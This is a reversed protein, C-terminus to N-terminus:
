DDACFARVRLRHNRAVSLLHMVVAFRGEGKGVGAYASYDMGCLDIMEDFRLGPEDRLLLAVDHWDDPRVEITVQGLAVKGSVLREGLADELRALLVEPTVPM